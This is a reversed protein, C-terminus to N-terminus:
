LWLNTRRATIKRWAAATWIPAVASPTASPVHLHRLRDTGPTASLAQLNGLDRRHRDGIRIEGIRVWQIEFDHM